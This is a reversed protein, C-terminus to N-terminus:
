GQKDEPQAAEAAAAEPSPSESQADGEGNNTLNDADQKLASLDAKLFKEISEKTGRLVAAIMSKRLNVAQYSPVNFFEVQPIEMGNAAKQGHAPNKIKTVKSVRYVVDSRVGAEDLKRELLKKYRAKEKKPLM